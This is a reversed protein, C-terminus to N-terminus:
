PVAISLTQCPFSPVDVLHIARIGDTGFCPSIVLFPLDSAIITIAQTNSIRLAIDNVVIALIIRFVTPPILAAAARNGAVM